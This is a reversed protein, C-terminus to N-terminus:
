SVQTKSKQNVNLSCIEHELSRATEALIFTAIHNSVNPQDFAASVNYSQHLLQHVDWNPIKEHVFHRYTLSMKLQWTPLKKKLLWNM